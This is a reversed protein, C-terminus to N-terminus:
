NKDNKLHAKGWNLESIDKAKIFMVNGDNFLVNCGEKGYIEIHNKVSVLEPGGFQNWGHETEFLLVVTSASNPEVNPNLGYNAGKIDYAYKKNGASDNYDYVFRVKIPANAEEIPTDTITYHESICCLVEKDIGTKEVLLDCWKSPTPYLGENDAAYRKLANDLARLNRQCPILFARSKIKSVVFPVGWLILAIIIITVILENLTYAKKRTENM